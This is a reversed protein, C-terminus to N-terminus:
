KSEKGRLVTCFFVSNALTTVLLCVLVACVKTLSLVQWLHYSSVMLLVLQGMMECTLYVALLLRSEPIKTMLALVGGSLATLTIMTTLTKWMQEAHHDGANGRIQDNNTNMQVGGTELDPTRTQMNANVNEEPKPQLQKPVTVILVGNEITAKVEEVKANEPLSFHASFKGHSRPISYWNNNNEEVEKKREGSIHLVGDNVEFKVEEIKLGPLNPEFFYNDSTETSYIQTNAIATKDDFVEYSDFM